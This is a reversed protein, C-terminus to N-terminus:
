SLRQFRKMRKRELELKNKVRYNRKEKLVHYIITLLQRAVVIKAKNSGRKAKVRNYEERLEADKVTAPIIAEILGWRLWKNGGKIIKGNWTKGGSSRTSPILGAYSALKKPNRFREVGDIEAAILRSLFEGIGPVTMLRKVDTNTKSYAKITGEAKKIYVNLEDIFECERDVLERDIETLSMESLQKRGAKGFLDTQPKLKKTEEPYRDFVTHVRNKTMTRLRVFFMRERLAQRLKRASESPVHAMPILDARLLHGLITADIKDTKIKAEAIAKVKLPNALYVDDCLQELLDYMVTWNRTAEVVARREGDSFASLFRGVSGLNNDVRGSRLVEGKDDQVVIHSYKKHFDVGIHYIDRM